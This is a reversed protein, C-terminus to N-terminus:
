FMSHMDQLSSGAAIRHADAAGRGIGHRSAAVACLASRPGARSQSRHSEQDSPNNQYITFGRVSDFLITCYRSIDHFIACM